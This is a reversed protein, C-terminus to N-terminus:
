SLTVLTSSYIDNLFHTAFDANQDKHRFINKSHVYYYPESMPKFNQAVEEIADLIFNLEHNTMTPHISLRVWGPRAFLDGRDIREMIEKSQERNINLLYHGYTGACACGGRVQIGYHDNLLKVALNFHLDDIYFSVSGIRHQINSQLIHLNPIRLLREFLVSLLEEERKMMQDPGMEEKLAFCLATKMGQLFPPTGGDERREVDDIYYHEKWPTTFKVTGGGSHDPIRNHYLCKNFILVGPTAPGGLFKHPSIFVADLRQENKEPHMNIPVYPGSCAFDVFCYGGERHIMEAISHYPSIVGTVNSAATVSAIKLSRNAYKKLLEEFHNLDVQGEADAQIIEVDAVTELWSTHNSHHEMHTVFVVPKNSKETMTYFESAREPVRLGLIRQLKNIGATMGSGEFLLVDEANAHVKEKIFRKSELYADTMLTGTISTETHTNGCFPYIREILKQEIPRYLRGSAIWDAYVMKKIGYPTPFEQDIGIIQDHFPAFHQELM